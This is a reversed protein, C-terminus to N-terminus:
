QTNATASSLKISRSFFGVKIADIERSARTTPSPFLQHSTVRIAEDPDSRFFLVIGFKKRKQPPPATMKLSPVVGPNNHANVGIRNNVKQKGCKITLSQYTLRILQTVLWTLTSQIQNSQGDRRQEFSDQAGVFLFLFLLFLKIGKKKPAPGKKEKRKKDAALRPGDRDWRALEKKKEEEEEEKKYPNRYILEGRKQYHGPLRVVQKM